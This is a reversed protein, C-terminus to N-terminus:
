ILRINIIFKLFRFLISPRLIFIQLIHRIPELNFKYLAPIAWFRLGPAAGINFDLSERLTVIYFAIISLIFLHLYSSLDYYVVFLSSKLAMTSPKYM